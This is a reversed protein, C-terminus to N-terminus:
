ATPATKELWQAFATPSHVTMVESADGPATTWTLAWGPRLEWETGGWDLVTVPDGGEWRDRYTGQLPRSHCDDSIRENLAVTFLRPHCCQEPERGHAPADRRSCAPLLGAHQGARGSAVNGQRERPTPPRKATERWVRYALRVRYYRWLTHKLIFRRPRAFPRRKSNGLHWHPPGGKRPSPRDIWTCRYPQLTLKLSRDRWRMKMAVRFADRRTAFSIKSRHERAWKKRQKKSLM